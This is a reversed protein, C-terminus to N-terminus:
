QSITAYVAQLFADVSREWNFQRSWELAAGRLREHKDENRWVSALGAALAEPHRECVIGTEEHRTSDRLGPADYVVGVTGQSNAETVVLGWGERVSCMVIASALQLLELKRDENVHGLFEVQGHVGLKTSLKRLHRAYGQEDSGIFWLRAKPYGLRALHPLAMIAQDLMKSPVIRGMCCFAPGGCKERLPPLNPLPVASIGYPVFHLPGRFGMARLDELTSPSGSIISTDKYLRMWLPEALYGAAAMPWPLHHWWIERALQHVMAVVPVQRSWLPAAFPLTNIQDVIVSYSELRNKLKRYAHWRVTLPDGSRMVEVGDVFEYAKAGPYDAAFLSVSHGMQVLRRAIEHTVIEAGGSQPDGPSRWSLNLISIQPYAM